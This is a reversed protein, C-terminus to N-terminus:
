SAKRAVAPPSWRVVVDCDLLSLTKAEVEPTHGNIGMGCRIAGLHYAAPLFDERVRFVAEGPGLRAFTRKGYSSVPAYTVPAYSLIDLPNKGTAMMVAVRGVVSKIFADAVKFGLLTLAADFSGTQPELLEAASFALRLYDAVPFSALEQWAAKKHTAMLTDRAASAPLSQLEACVSRFPAGKVTHEATALALRAALDQANIPM